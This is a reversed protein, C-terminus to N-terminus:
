IKMAQKKLKAVKHKKLDELLTSLKITAVAVVKDAGGYYVFLTGDKIVAGCSYVVGWKYGNNEYYEEPELIPADSRYLVKTPDKLDLILAGMRYRDPNKHDMAHYLILWGMDTKIPAPGVGRFWSDWTRDQDVPRTNNSNIFHKGDLEDLSDFYNILVKPYFSHMIAFKGNVKEPFIVWNKHIQGPPSILIANKWNWKKNEFDRLKM